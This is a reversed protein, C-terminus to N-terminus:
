LFPMCLPAAINSQNIHVNANEHMAIKLQLRMSQNVVDFTNGYNIFIHHTGSSHNISPNRDELNRPICISRNTM